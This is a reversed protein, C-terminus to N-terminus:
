VADGDLVEFEFAENYLSEVPLFRRAIRHLHEMSFQGDLRFHKKYDHGKIKESGQFLADLDDDSYKITAGDFHVAGSEFDKSLAHVYHAFSSGPVCQWAEMQLLEGRVDKVKRLHLLLTSFKGRLFTEPLFYKAKVFREKLAKEVARHFPVGFIPASGFIAPAHTARFAALEWIASNEVFYDVVLASEPVPFVQVDQDEAFVIDYGDDWRRLQLVKCPILGDETVYKKRLLEFSDGSDLYRRRDGFKLSRRRAM